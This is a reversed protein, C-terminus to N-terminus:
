RRRPQDPHMLVDLPRRLSAGVDAADVAFGSDAQEFVQSVVDESAVAVDLAEGIYLRGFQAQAEAIVADAEVVEALHELNKTDEM